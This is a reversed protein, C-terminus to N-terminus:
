RGLCRRTRGDVLEIEVAAICNDDGAINRLARPLIPHVANGRLTRHDLRIADHSGRRLSQPDSIAPGASEWTPCALAGDCLAVEDVATLNHVRVHPAAKPPEVRLPDVIKWDVWFDHKPYAREVRNLYMFGSGDYRSDSPGDYFQGYHVNEGAYTGNLQATLELGQHTVEPGGGNQILRHNKGGRVWFLDLIYSNAEDVDVMALCRRYTEVGSYIAPGEGDVDVVRMGPLESFLRTKGSFSGERKPGKDNVMCTNHSVVHSTWGIREPWAGTYLPYGLDVIGVSDNALMQIALRDEHGHYIMRGYYLMICRAHDRSPSQLFASGYGGSNYSRLKAPEVNAVDAKLKEVIAEPERDYIDLRLGAFTRGNSYWVERAMDRGGYVRYGTLAMEVPAKLLHIGMCLKSDGVTDGWNPSHRDAARVKGYMTFCNRFKPYDRYIDHHDYRGYQRLLEAVVYLSEGPIIAYELGSEVSLGERGIFDVLLYPVRGGDSEFLWDLYRPAGTCTQSLVHSQRHMWRRYAPTFRYAAEYPPRRLDIRDWVTLRRLSYAEPCRSRGRDSATRAVSAIASM